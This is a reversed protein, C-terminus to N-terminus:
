VFAHRRIFRISMDVWAQNDPVVEKGLDSTIDECTSLGHGGKEFLHMEFPIHHKQLATAYLMSNEVPVSEDEVTHWLFTPVTEGSVRNELSLRKCTAETNSAGLLYDRSGAHTHEGLSLVAYSLIQGDPKWNGPGLAAKLFPENWLTGLSAALHGGASFGCVFVANSLVHWKDANQRITKVCWALELLSTPFVAPACNYRLVAAHFGAALYKAAIPEAERDSCYSYAGGPCVLVLPKKTKHPLSPSSPLLYLALDPECPPAPLECASYDPSPIIHLEM